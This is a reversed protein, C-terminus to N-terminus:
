SNGYNALDSTKLELIIRSNNWLYKVFNMIIM